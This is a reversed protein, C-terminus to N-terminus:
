KLKLLTAADVRGEVGLEKKLSEASELYLRAMPLNLKLAPPETSVASIHVTFSGRSFRKKIEDMVRNELPSFRDSARLSIDIFRQNLCKIEVSFVDEGISFEARGWGTMSKAM